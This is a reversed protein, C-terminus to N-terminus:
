WKKISVYRNFYLFCNQVEINAADQVPTKGNRNKFTASAGKCLLFQVMSLCGKSSAIHLLTDGNNNSDNIPTENLNVLYKLIDERKWAAANHCAFNGSKNKLKVDVKKSVLYQVIDFHDKGAAIHLLSNGSKDQTNLLKPEKELLIKLCQLRGYTAAVHTPYM